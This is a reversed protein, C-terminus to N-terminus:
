DYEDPPAMHIGDLVYGLGLRMEIPEAINLCTNIKNLPQM